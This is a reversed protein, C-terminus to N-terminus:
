YQQSSPGAEPKAPLPRFAMSGNSSASKLSAKKDQELTGDLVGNLKQNLESYLHVTSDKPESYVNILSAPKDTDKKNSDTPIDLNNIPQSIKDEMLKLFNMAGHETNNDTNLEKEETRNIQLNGLEEYLHADDHTNNNTYSDEIVFTEYLREIMERAQQHTQPNELQMRLTQLLEQTLEDPLEHVSPPEEPVMVNEDELSSENQQNYPLNRFHACYGKRKLWIGARISLIVLTGLIAIIFVCGITIALIYMSNNDTEQYDDLLMTATTEIVKTEGHYKECKLIEENKCALITFNEMNILTKEIQFCTALFSTVNCFSTKLINDVDYTNTLKSMWENQFCMCQESFANDDFIFNPIGKLSKVFSLSEMQPNIMYNGKFSFQRINYPDFEPLKLFDKQITTIHNNNINIENWNIIIFAEERLLAM